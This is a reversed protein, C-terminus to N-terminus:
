SPAAGAPDGPERGTAAFYRRDRAVSRRGRQLLPRGSPSAPAASGKGGLAAPPRRPAAGGGATEGPQDLARAAPPPPPAARGLRAGGAVDALVGDDGALVHRPQVDARDRRAARLHVRDRPPADVASGVPEPGVTAAGSRRRAYLLEDRPVRRAAPARTGL